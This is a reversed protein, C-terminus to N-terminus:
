GGLSENDERECELNNDMIQSQMGSQGWDHDFDEDKPLLVEM